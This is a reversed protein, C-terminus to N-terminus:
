PIMFGNPGLFIFEHHTVGYGAVMEEKARGFAPFFFWCRYLKLILFRLIMRSISQGEGTGEGMCDGFRHM